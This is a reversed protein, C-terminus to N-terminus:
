PAIEVERVLTLKEEFAAELEAVSFFRVPPTEPDRWSKIYLWGQEDQWAFIAKGSPVSLSTLYMAKVFKM